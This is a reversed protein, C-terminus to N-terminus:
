QPDIRGQQACWGDLFRRRGCSRWRRSCDLRCCWGGGKRRWLGNGRSRDRSGRSRRSGSGSSGLDEPWRGRPCQRRDMGCGCRWRVGGKRRRKCRAVLIRCWSVDRGALDIPDIVKFHNGLAIRTELTGAVHQARVADDIALEIIFDLRGAVHPQNRGIGFDAPRAQAHAHLRARAFEFRRNVFDCM